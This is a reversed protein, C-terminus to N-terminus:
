GFRTAPRRALLGGRRGARCGGASLFVVMFGLADRTVAVSAASAIAAMSATGAKAWAGTVPVDGLFPEVREFTRVTLTRKPSATTVPLIVTYRADPAADGGLAPAQGGLVLSQQAGDEARVQGGPFVGDVPAREGVVAVVLLPGEVEAHASGREACLLLGMLCMARAGSAAARSTGAAALAWTLTCGLAIGAPALAVRSM